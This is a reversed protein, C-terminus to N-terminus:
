LLDTEKRKIIQATIVSGFADEDIKVERKEIEGKGGEIKEISRPL